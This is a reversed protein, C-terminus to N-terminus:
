AMDPRTSLIPSILTLNYFQQFLSLVIKINHWTRYLKYIIIIIAVKKLVTVIWVSSIQVSYVGYLIRSEM